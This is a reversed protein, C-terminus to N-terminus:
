AYLHAYGHLMDWQKAGEALAVSSAVDGAILSSAVCAGGGGLAAAVGLPPFLTAVGIFTAVQAAVAVSVTVRRKLAYWEAYEERAKWDTCSLRTRLYSAVTARACADM